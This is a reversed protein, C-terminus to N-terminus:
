NDLIQFYVVMNRDKLLQMIAGYALLRQKNSRSKFPAAIIANSDCHYAIMKHQNGSRSQVLFRVTDDTYVKSIHEYKIRIELSPTTNSPLSTAETLKFKERHRKRTVSSGNDCRFWIGRYPRM